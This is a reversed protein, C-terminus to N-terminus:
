GLKLVIARVRPASPPLRVDLVVSGGDLMAGVRADRLGKRLLFARAEREVRRALEPGLREGHVTLELLETLEEELSTQPAAARPTVPVLGRRAGPAFRGSV